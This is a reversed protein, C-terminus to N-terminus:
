LSAGEEITGFWPLLPKLLRDYLMGATWSSTERGGAVLDFELGFCFDIWVWEHKPITALTNGLERLSGAGAAAKLLGSPPDGDVEIGKGDTSFEVENHDDCGYHHTMVWIRASKGAGKVVASIPEDLRGAALDPGFQHWRWDKGMVASAKEHSWADDSAKVESGFGKEVWLGCFFNEHMGFNPKFVFKGYKFAPKVKPPNVMWTAGPTARGGYPHSRVPKIEYATLVQQVADAVDKANAYGLAIKMEM